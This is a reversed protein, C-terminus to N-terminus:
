EHSKITKAVISGNYFEVDILQNTKLNKYKLINESKIDKIIAFGRKLVKKVSLNELRINFNVVELKKQKM